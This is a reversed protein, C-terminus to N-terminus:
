AVVSPTFLPPSDALFPDMSDGSFPPYERSVGIINLACLTAMNERAEYSASGTHAALVVNPLESLGPALDPEQEYVDLGCLFRPHTKLHEVLAKEDIVQGRSMNILVADSKCLALRPANILHVTTPNLTPFLAIVDSEKLLTDINEVHTVFASSNGMFRHFERLQNEMPLKPSPSAYLCNMQHGMVMMRAYSSGIRGAGILGLTKRYLLNGRLLRPLWGSFKGERMFKDGEAVRRAAAFTLAVGMEATTHTLVGPTNCVAIGLEKACATDVNNYGVAYNAYVKCGAAGLKRVCEEDWTESLQGIVAYCSDGVLELLESKSPVREETVIDLSFGAETLLSIWRDGPLSKTCLIRKSASPNITKIQM